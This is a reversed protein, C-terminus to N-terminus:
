LTSGAVQGISLNSSRCQSIRITGNQFRDLQYGSFLIFCATPGHMCFLLVFCAVPLPRRAAHEGECSWRCSADDDEGGAVPWAAHLRGATRGPALDKHVGISQAMWLGDLLETWKSRRRSKAEM